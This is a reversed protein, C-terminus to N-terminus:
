ALLAERLRAIAFPKALQSTRLAGRQYSLETAMAIYSPNSGSTVIVHAPSGIEALWLMLEIGDVDPMFIDVVVVTPQFRLYTERFLDSKALSEVAFGLDTAVRDILRLIAADDDVALLRREMVGAGMAGNGRQREGPYAVDDGAQEM